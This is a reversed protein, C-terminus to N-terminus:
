SRKHTPVILIPFESKHLVGESVSGLLLQHMRGRGHSGIVILDADLKSAEKLITEVAAGEVLLATADLGTKRLRDAIEQLQRHEAHFRHALSDRIFQPDPQLGISDPEQGALYLDAPEAKTTHLLWVKASLATAIEEAKKVVKETSESLDIGVLLRM